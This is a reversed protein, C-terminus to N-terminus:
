RQQAKWRGKGCGGRSGGDAGQRQAGMRYAGYRKVVREREGAEMQELHPVETERTRM